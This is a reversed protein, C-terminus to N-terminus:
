RRTDANHLAQDRLTRLAAPGHKRQLAALLEPRSCKMRGLLSKAANQGKEFAKVRAAAKSKERAPIKPNKSNAIAQQARIWQPTSTCKAVSLKPNGLATILTDYFGSIQNRLESTQRGSANAAGIARPGTALFLIGSLSKGMGEALLGARSKVWEEALKKALTRQLDPTKAGFARAIGDAVAASGLRAGVSRETQGLPNRGNCIRDEASRTLFAGRGTPPAPRQKDGDGKTERTMEQPFYDETICQQAARPEIKNGM